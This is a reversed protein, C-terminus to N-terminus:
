DTVDAFTTLEKLNVNGTRVYQNNVHIVSANRVTFGNGEIVSMIDSICTFGNWEFRPQFVVQAGSQFAQASKTDM